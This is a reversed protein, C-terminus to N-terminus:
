TQGNPTPDLMILAMADLLAHALVLPWVRRTRAYYAAFVIGMPLMYLFGLIGQYTHVAVRLATSLLIIQWGAAAPFAAPIFGVYLMEEYIPNIVVIAAIVLGNVSGTFHTTFVSGATEPALLAFFVAFIWPVLIGGLLAMGLGRVPDRRAFPRTVHRLRWDRRRLFLVLMSGVVVEYAAVFSLGGNEMSIQFGSLAGQGLRFLGLASRVAFVGLGLTLVLSIARSSLQPAGPAFPAVGPEVAILTV